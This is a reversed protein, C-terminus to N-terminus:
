CFGQIFLGTISKFRITKAIFFIEGYAHSIQRLNCEDGWIELSNSNM